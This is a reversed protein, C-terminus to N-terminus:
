LLLDYIGIATDKMTISLLNNEVNMTTSNASQNILLPASKSSPLNFKFTRNIVVLVIMMLGVFLAYYVPYFILKIAKEIDWFVDDTPASLAKNHKGMFRILVAIPSIAIFIWLYVGRAFLVVFLVLLSFTYMIMMGSHLLIQIIQKLQTDIKTTGNAAYYDSIQASKFIEFGLFM